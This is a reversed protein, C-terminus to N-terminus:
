PPAEEEVRPGACGPLLAVAACLLVLTGRVTPMNDYGRRVLIWSHLMAKMVDMRLHGFAACGCLELAQSPADRAEVPPTDVLEVPGLRHPLRPLSRRPQQGLFEDGHAAGIAALPQLCADVQGGLLHGVYFVAFHAAARDLEVDLAVGSSCQERELHSPQ